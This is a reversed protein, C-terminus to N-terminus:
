LLSSRIKKLAELPASRLEHEWIRIVTWGKNKLLKNIKKDRTINSSIKAQWYKKPPIRNKKKWLYGHWFDGDVFVALKKGVFVIDPHGPLGYHIRYCTLGAATLEKRLILEPSTNKGKIRSM